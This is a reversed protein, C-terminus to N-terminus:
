SLCAQFTEWPAPDTPHNELRTTSSKMGKTASVIHATGGAELLAQQAEISGGFAELPCALPTSMQVPLKAAFSRVFFCRPRRGFAVIDGLRRAEKPSQISSPAALTM